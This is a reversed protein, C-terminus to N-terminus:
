GADHTLLAYRVLNFYAYFLFEVLDPNDLIEIKGHEHHRITLENSITTAGRLLADYHEALLEHPAMDRVLQAVSRKKNGPIHMTKIREFADALGRVAEWRNTAGETQYKEIAGVVLKELHADGGFPLPEALLVGLVPSGSFRVKGSRLRRGTGFRALLENVQVTYDYRGAAMDFETPHSSMCFQHFWSDVPKSVIQFFAEVYSMIDADSLDAIDSDSLPWKASGLQKVLCRHIKASEWFYFHGDPCSSPAREAFYDREALEELVVLFAPMFRQRLPENTM